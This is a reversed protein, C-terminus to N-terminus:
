SPQLLNDISLPTFLPINQLWIVSKKNTQKDTTFTNGWKETGKCLKAEVKLWSDELLKGCLGIWEWAESLLQL